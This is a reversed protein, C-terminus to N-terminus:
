LEPLEESVVENKQTNVQIKHVDEVLQGFAYLPLLGLICVGFGILFILFGAFADGSAIALIVISVVDLLMVVVAINQMTKGVHSFFIKEFQKM